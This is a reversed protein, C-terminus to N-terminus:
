ETGSGSKGRRAERPFQRVVHALGGDRHAEYSRPAGDVKVSQKGGAPGSMSREKGNSVQVGLIILAAGGVHCGNAIAGPTADAVGSPVRVGQRAGDVKDGGQEELVVDDELAVVVDTDTASAEAVVQEDYRRLVYSDLVNRRIAALDWVFLFRGTSALVTREGSASVDFRAPRFRVQGGLMRLHEQRIRLRRPAPKAAGMRKEFGTADGGGPLSTPVVLIAQETTAVLWRGDDSADIGIIADGIGPLKTTARPARGLADTAALQGLALKRSYLRIDGKGTGVAMQGLPTTAAASFQQGSSYTHVRSTVLKDGPLRMDVGLFSNRNMALLTPSAVSTAGSRTGQQPVLTDVEHAEHVRFEQVVDPRNLDLKYFHNKRASNTLLLDSDKNHLLTRSPSFVTGDGATLDGLEGEFSLGDDGAPDHRFIGIRPGRVVFSRGHASSTELLRNAPTGPTRPVATSPTRSVQEFETMPADDSDDDSFGGGGGMEVDPRDADTIWQADASPLDAQTKHQWRCQAFVVRFEDLAEVSGFKLSWTIANGTPDVYMWAVARRDDYYEHFRAAELPQSWVVPLGIVSDVVEGTLSAHGATVEALDDAVGVEDRLLYLAYSFTGTQALAVVARDELLWFEGVGSHWLYVETGMAALIGADEPVMSGAALPPLTVDAPDGLDGSDADAVLPEGAFFAAASRQPVRHAVLRADAEVSALASSFSAAADRQGTGATAKAEIGQAILGIAADLLALQGPATLIAREGHEGAVVGLAVTDGWPVQAVVGNKCEVDMETYSTSEPSIILHLSTPRRTVSLHVTHSTGDPSTTM